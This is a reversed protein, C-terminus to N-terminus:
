GGVLEGPLLSLMVMDARAGRMVRWSRMVGERQFGVAEALALSRGNAPLALVEIRQLGLAEFAFRAYLTLARRGLGRGRTWRALSYGLEGREDERMRLGFSGLLEDSRADVVALPLASGDRMLDAHTGLWEVADRDRYPRPISAVWRAIEPDDMMVALAGADSDRFARLSVTGDTLPPDPPALSDVRAVTASRSLPM